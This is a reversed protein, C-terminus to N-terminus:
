KRGSKTVFRKNKFPRRSSSAAQVDAFSQLVEGDSSQSANDEDGESLEAENATSNNDISPDSGTDEIHLTDLYNKMVSIQETLALIEKQMKVTKDQQRSVQRAPKARPRGFVQAPCRFKSGDPLICSAPHGLENCYDCVMNPTVDKAQLLFAHPQEDEHALNVLGQVPQKTANAARSIFENVYLTALRLIDPQGNHPHNNAAIPSGAFAPMAGYTAPYVCNTNQRMSTKVSDFFSPLGEIFKEKQADGDKNGLVRAQEMVMFTWSYYGTTNFPYKLSEMTMRNWTDERAKSVKPPITLRGFRPLFAYVAWGNNNFDRMLMKYVYSKANTYNLICAFTRENRRDSEDNQAQTAAARNPVGNLGGADTRRATRLLSYGKDVISALGNNLPYMINEMFDVQPLGNWEFRIKNLAPIDNSKNNDTDDAGGRLRLSKTNYYAVATLPLVLASGHYLTFMSFGFHCEDLPEM